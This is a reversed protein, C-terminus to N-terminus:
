PFSIPTSGPEWKIFKPMIRSFLQSEKFRNLWQQLQPYEASEFWQLDVHACQRIFPLIAYDALTESNTILWGQNKALRTELEKFWHECQLRYYDQPHEPHRDAYKYKDLWPKFETDNIEILKRIQEEQEAPLWHDPDHKALAWFMIDLSEDIVSGDQLHLVPVTGKPSIDLMAQPKDKLVVERLETTVGSYALALRARM